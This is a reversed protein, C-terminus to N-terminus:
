LKSHAEKPAIKIVLVNLFLLFFYVTLTQQKAGKPASKLPLPAFFLFLNNSSATMGSKIRSRM